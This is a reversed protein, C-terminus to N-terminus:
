AKTPQAARAHAVNGASVAALARIQGQFRGGEVPPQSPVYGERCCDKKLMWNENRFEWLCYGSQENMPGSSKGMSQTQIIIPDLLTSM